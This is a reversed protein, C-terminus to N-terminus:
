RNFHSLIKEAEAHRGPPIPITIPDHFELGAQSLVITDEELRAKTTYKRDMTYYEGDFYVADEAFVVEVGPGSPDTRDCVSRAIPQTAENLRIFEQRLPGELTWRAIVGEGREMRARKRAEDGRISGMALAWIVGLLGVLSVGVAVALPLAVFSLAVAAVIILLAVYAQRSQRAPDQQAM